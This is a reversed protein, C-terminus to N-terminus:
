AADREEDETSDTEEAPRPAVTIRGPEIDEMGTKNLYEVLLTEATDFEGVIPLPKLMFYGDGGIFLFDTAAMTYTRNPDLPADGVEIDYVRHGPPQEPDFSFTLGSVHLFGGFSEPSNFVSHELMEHLINGSLKAVQITNGFPFIAMIDGRTVDGAPLDNRMGGGNIVGIEAGTEERFADACLNGLAAESQRLVLPDSTLSRDSHAIVEGFLRTNDKEMQSLAQAVAPDPVKALAQIDKASLLRATAGTLHHHNVQLKVCGLKYGHAGTQVILTNGVRMGDPLATHSHGDVILDIGPAEKAIRESTFESSKDIGMHMVAVVVDCQPRLMSIMARASDVPNLFDVETVNKPNTKFATEPTTLGFIGLTVGSPLTRIQYPRFLFEREPSAPDRPIRRVTNASLVACHFEKALAELRDSGYNYDHNGPALIDLGAANLLPVMNAGRSITIRPMGHLTDGADMWLTNPNKAKVAKMAAAMQALGITAGGDDGAKVRAHIDNTHFIVVEATGDGEAAWVASPLYLIAAWLVALLLRLSVIPKRM